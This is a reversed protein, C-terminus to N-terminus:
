PCGEPAMDRVWRSLVAIGAVDPVHVPGQPMRVWPDTSLMRSLFESQEPHGPVIVHDNGAM